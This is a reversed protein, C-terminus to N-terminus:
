MVTWSAETRVSRPTVPTWTGYPPVPVPFSPIMPATPYVLPSGLLTSTAPSVIVPSRIRAPAPVSRVTPPTRVSVYWPMVPSRARNADVARDVPIVDPPSIDMLAFGARISM